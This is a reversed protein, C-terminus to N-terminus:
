VWADVRHESIQFGSRRKTACKECALVIDGHDARFVLQPFQKEFSDRATASPEHRARFLLVPESCLRNDESHFPGVPMISIDDAENGWRGIRAFGIKGGNEAAPRMEFTRYLRSSQSVDSSSVTFGSAEEIAM